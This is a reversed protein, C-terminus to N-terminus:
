LSDIHFCETTHGLKKMAQADNRQSVHADIMRYKDELYPTVDIRHTIYGDERARPEYYATNELPAQASDLCFYWVQQVSLEKALYTTLKSAAIHDKHGTLGLPEFTMFSLETTEKYSGLIDAIIKLLKEHLLNPDVHELEGDPYHLSHATTAGLIEAAARWEALRTTALDPVNDINVGADGDTLLILHINYGENKLKLLTGSPGFAEDDPHAFIGILLKKMTDTYSREEKAALLLLIEPTAERRSSWYSSPLYSDQPVRESQESLCDESQRM